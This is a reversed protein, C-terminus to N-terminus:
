AKGGRYDIGEPADPVSKRIDTAFIIEAFEAIKENVMDKTQAYSKKKYEKSLLSDNDVVAANYGRRRLSEICQETRALREPAEFSFPRIIIATSVIQLEEAAEM